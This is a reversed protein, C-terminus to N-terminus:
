TIIALSRYMLRLTKRLQLLLKLSYLIAMIKFIIVQKAFYNHSPSKNFKILEVSQSLKSITRM